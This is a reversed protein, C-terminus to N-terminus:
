NPGVVRKGEEGGWCDQDTFSFALTVLDATVARQMNPTTTTDDDLYSTM